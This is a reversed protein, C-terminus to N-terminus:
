RRRRPEGAEWQRELDVAIPLASRRWSALDGRYGPAYKDHVLARACEDETPDTVVRARGEFAGSGIEVTVAPERRLNKVWDSRDGGGSLLYLTDQDIAFWIEIRHPHGTVRGTTTLYSYQEGAFQSWTTM